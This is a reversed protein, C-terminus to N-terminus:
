QIADGTVQVDDINWGPYVVSADTPGIGWRFYVTPQGDAIAAPVAYEVFQWNEESIHAYGTTWLDVWTTGDNSVQICADDYPAEVGLWRWFSLRINRYGQCDIPDTTAYRTESLDNDYDGDLVFGVVNSGTHGAAPDGNWSGEGTPQGWAWGPDLQWGPDTDMNAQYIADLVVAISVSRSMQRIGDTVMFSFRYTRLAQEAAPKWSVTLTEEDFHAGEPLNGVVFRLPRNEPNPAHLEFQIQQGPSVQEPAVIPDLVPAM